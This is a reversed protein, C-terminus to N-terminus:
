RGVSGARAALGPMCGPPPPNAITECRVRIKTDGHPSKQKQGGHTQYDYAVGARHIRQAEQEAMNNITDNTAKRLLEYTTKAERKIIAVHRDEHWLLARYFRDWERKEAEPRHRYSTWVPMDIRLTFTVDLRPFRGKDDPQPGKWTISSLRTQGLEKGSRNRKIDCLTAEQLRLGPTRRIDFTLAMASVEDADLSASM